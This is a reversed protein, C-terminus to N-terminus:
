TNQNPTKAAFKAQYRRTRAKQNRLFNKKKKDHNKTALGNCDTFYSLLTKHKGKMVDSHMKKHARKVEREEFRYSAMLEEKTPKPPLRKQERLIDEASRQLLKKQSNKTDM